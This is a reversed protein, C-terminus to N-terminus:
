RREHGFEHTFAAIVGKPIAGQRDLCLIGEMRMEEGSEPSSYTENTRQPDVENDRLDLRRKTTM